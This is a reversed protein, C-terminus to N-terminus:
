QGGQQTASRNFRAADESLTKAIQSSGASVMQNSEARLAARGAGGGAPPDGVPLMADDDYPDRYRM